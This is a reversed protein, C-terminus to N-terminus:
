VKTKWPLYWRGSTGHQLCIRDKIEGAIPNGQEDFKTRYVVEKLEIHDKVYQTLDEQSKPSGSLGWSREFYEKISAISTLGETKTSHLVQEWPIEIDRKRQFSLIPPTEKLNEPPKDVM